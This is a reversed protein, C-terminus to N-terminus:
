VATKRKAKKQRPFAERGTFWLYRDIWRLSFQELGYFNKFAHIVDVYRPYNKLDKARFKAFGDRSGFHCLMKSVLEDYIPFKDPNYRNCYKSAFSYYRYQKGQVVAAAMENVLLADGAAIRQSPNLEVIRKALALKYYVNTSYYDDLVTVKALVEALDDHQPCLDHFLLKLSNEQVTFKENDAWKRKVDEVLAPEPTQISPM